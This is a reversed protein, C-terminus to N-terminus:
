PSKYVHVIDLARILMGSDYDRLAKVDINEGKPRCINVYM